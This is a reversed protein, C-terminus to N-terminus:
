RARGPSILACGAGHPALSPGPVPTAPRPPPKGLPLSGAIRSEPAKSVSPAAVASSSPEAPAATASTASTPAAAATADAPAPQGAAAAAVLAGFAARMAPVSTTQATDRVIEVPPFGGFRLCEVGDGPQVGDRIASVNRGDCDGGSDGGRGPGAEAATAGEGEGEPAALEVAFLPSSVSDEGKAPAIAVAATMGATVAEVAGTVAAELASTAAVAAAAVGAATKAATPVTAASDGSSAVVAAAATPLAATAHCCCSCCGIRGRGAETGSSGGAASAAAAVGPAAEVEGAVGTMAAAKPAAAFSPSPPLTVSTAPLPGFEPITQAALALQQRQSLPVPAKTLTDDPSDAGGNWHRKAPLEPPAWSFLGPGAFFTSSFGGQSGWLGVSRAAAPACSLPAVAFAQGGGGGGKIGAAGAEPSNCPAGGDRDSGKESNNSSGDGDGGDGGGGDGRGGYVSMAAAGGVRRHKQRGGVWHWGSTDSGAAAGGGAGGGGDSSSSGVHWNAPLGSLRGAGIALCTIDRSDQDDLRVDTSDFSSSSMREDRDCAVAAAAAAATAAAAAAAAAAASGESWLSVSTPPQSLAPPEASLGSRGGWLSSGLPAAPAAPVAPVSSPLRRVAPANAGAAATATATAMVAAEWGRGSRTLGVGELQGDATGASGEAGAGAGGWPDKAGTFPAGSGMLSSQAGAESAPPVASAGAPAGTSIAATGDYDLQPERKAASGAHAASGVTVATVATIATAAPARSLSPKSGAAVDTSPVM